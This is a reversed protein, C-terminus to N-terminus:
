QNKGLHEQGQQHFYVGKPNNSQDRAGPVPLLSVVLTGLSFVDVRKIAGNATGLTMFTPPLPLLSNRTLPGAVEKGKTGLDGLKAAERQSLNGGEKGKQLPPGPQEGSCPTGEKLKQSCGLGSGGM